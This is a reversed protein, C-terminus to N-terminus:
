WDVDYKLCLEIIPFSPFDSVKQYRLSSKETFPQGTAGVSKSGMLEQSPLNTGVAVSAKGGLAIKTLTVNQGGGRTKGWRSKPSLLKEGWRGWTKIRKFEPPNVTAGDRNRIRKHTIRLFAQPTARDILTGVMSQTCPLPLWGRVPPIRGFKEPFLHKDQHLIFTDEISCMFYCKGSCQHGIKLAEARHTARDILTGM